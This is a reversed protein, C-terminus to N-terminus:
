RVAQEPRLVARDPVMETTVAAVSRAHLPLVDVGPPSVWGVAGVSVCGVTFAIFTLPVGGAIPELAGNVTVAASEFPVVCTTVECALQCDELGLTALTRGVPTTVPTLAPVASM